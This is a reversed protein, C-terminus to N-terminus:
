PERGVGKGRNGLWSSRAAATEGDVAEILWLDCTDAPPAVPIPECQLLEDRRFAHIRVPEGAPLRALQEDITDLSCRIGDIAVLLDGASLGARCAPGDEIVSALRIGCGDKKWRVGISPPLSGRQKVDADGKRVGGEDRRSSAPRLEMGVGVAGLLEALPPDETGHVYRQFFPALDGGHVEAALAEIDGPRVGTGTMGHRRWLLRMLDDLSREGKSSRRITLDLALAVLAGKSYYSVIANPANEDQKYLKTWADFSSEAVSQRFRGPTRMVRTIQRALLELYSTEDICGSRVLCLDDYYSTIGEFAWLLTTHVEHSLDAQQLAEPAIRKVNWLHFYEHSCLGLLRRYGEGVKSEGPVPLDDRRCMLSTSSRHELGGYGDGVVTLQFLYQEMPPLGGFLDIHTSCIKKLDSCLRKLDGRHRGTVALQHGTDGIQFSELSFRGMEVPHDILEWYDAAQYSGFGLPPANSAPLTTAVRWGEYAPGDPPRIEVECEERERGVVRLFVSTGNFYGHGTDLHAARVSLDWAYVDYQIRIEGGCAEIRWTQKDEKEVDIPGTDCRATLSVINRAFDRIMYSGPIWAPLTVRLPGPLQWELRLIVRYLHAEPSLPQIRYRIM